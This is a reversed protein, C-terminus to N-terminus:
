SIVSKNTNEAMHSIIQGTDYRLGYEPQRPMALIPMCALVSAIELVGHLHVSDSFIKFLVTLTRQSNMFRDSGRTTM